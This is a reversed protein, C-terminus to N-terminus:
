CRKDSSHSATIDNDPFTDSHEKILNGNMEASDELEEDSEETDSRVDRTQSYLVFM